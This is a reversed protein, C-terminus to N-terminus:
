SEITRSTPASRVKAFTANLYAGEGFSVPHDVAHGYSEPKFLSREADDVADLLVDFFEDTTIRSSCSAAVLMGRDDVLRVAEALLRRYMRLAGDRQSQRSAFSPPDVIVMDYRRGDDVLESMIDMADGLITEHRAAAVTPRDANLAMNRQAAALAGSSIDVSHVSTAGGAAASVSFGGSASFVDLVRRGSSRDRVRARNDRQDLFFGTKQGAIVDAEFRLGNERFIVVPDALEGQLIQGDHFGLDALPEDLNRALRLVVTAPAGITPELVAEL